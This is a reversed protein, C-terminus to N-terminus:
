DRKKVDLETLGGPLRRGKQEVTFVDGRRDASPSPRTASLNVAVGPPFPSSSDDICVTVVVPPETLLVDTRCRTNLEVTSPSQAAVPAPAVTVLILLLALVRM